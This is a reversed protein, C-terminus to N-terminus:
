IMKNPRSNIFYLNLCLLMKTKVKYVPGFGGQGLKNQESFNNTAASMCSFNYFPLKTKSLQNGELSLEVSGSGSFEASVERSKRADFMPILDSNKRRSDTSVAPFFILYFIYM